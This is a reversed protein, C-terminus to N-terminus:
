VKTILVSSEDVGSVKISAAISSKFARMKDLTFLEKSAIGSLTMGKKVKAGNYAVYPQMNETRMVPFVMTKGSPQLNVDGCIRDSKDTTTTLTLPAGPKDNEDGLAFDVVPYKLVCKPIERLAGVCVKVSGSKLGQVAMGNGTVLTTLLTALV